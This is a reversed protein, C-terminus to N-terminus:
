MNSFSAMMVLAWGVLDIIGMVLGATGLGGGTYQEPFERVLKRAKNGQIIAITGLIPGCVFFGIIGCLLSALAGPAREQLLTSPMYTVGPPAVPQGPQGQFGAAPGIPVMPQGPQGQFGAGPAMPQGQFGAVPAMPAVPVPQPRGAQHHAFTALKNVLEVFATMSELVDNPVSFLDEGNLSLKNALGPRLAFSMIRNLPVHRPKDNVLHMYLCHETLMMRGTQLAGMDLFVLAEEDKKKAYAFAMVAEHVKGPPIDPAVLFVQHAMKPRYTEMVAAFDLTPQPSLVPEQPAAPPFQGPVDQPPISGPPAPQVPGPSPVGGPPTPQVPGPSPAGPVGEQKKQAKWQEYEERSKFKPM